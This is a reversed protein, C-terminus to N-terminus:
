CLDWLHLPNLWLGFREVGIPHGAMLTLMQRGSKREAKAVEAKFLLVFVRPILLLRPFGDPFAVITVHGASEFGEAQCDLLPGSLCAIADGFIHPQGLGVVM